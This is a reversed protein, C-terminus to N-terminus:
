QSVSDQFAARLLTMSVSEAATTGTKIAIVPAYSKSQDFTSDITLTAVKVGNVYFHLKDRGDFRMGLKWFTGDTLSAATEGADTLAASNTADALITTVTGADKRYVIDFADDNGNDQLFGVASETALGDAAVDDALVEAAVGAAEALGVFIGMDADVDGPAVRAEFWFKKGSNRTIPGLTPGAVVAQDNDAAATTVSIGGGDNTLQAVITNGTVNAMRVNTGLSSGDAAATSDSAGAFREHMFFGLGKDNLLSNPCDGWISPSPQNAAGKQSFGVCSM